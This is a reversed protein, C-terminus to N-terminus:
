REVKGAPFEREVHERLQEVGKKMEDLAVAFAALAELAKEKPSEETYNPM